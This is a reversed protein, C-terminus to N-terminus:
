YLVFIFFAYLLLLIYLYIYKFNVFIIKKALILTLFSIIILLISSCEVLSSNTSFSSNCDTSAVSSSTFSFVGEESVASGVTSFSSAGDEVPVGFGAVSFSALSATAVGVAVLPKSTFSSTSFAFSKNWFLFIATIPTRAATATSITASTPKM